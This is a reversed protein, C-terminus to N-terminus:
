GRSFLFDAQVSKGSKDYAMNYVGNLIFGRERLRAIVQGALAQGRALQERIPM